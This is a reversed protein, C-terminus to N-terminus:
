LSHQHFVNRALGVVATGGFNSVSEFIQRSRGFDTAAALYLDRAECNAAM